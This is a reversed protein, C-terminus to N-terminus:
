DTLRDYVVMKTIAGHGQWASLVAYLQLEWVGSEDLDDEETLYYAYETGEITATWAGTTGSPKKYKIQLTTAGTLTSDSDLKIKTGIDGQFVRDFAM